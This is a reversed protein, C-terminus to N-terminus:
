FDQYFDRYIWALNRMIVKVGETCLEVLIEDSGAPGPLDMGFKEYFGGYFRLQILPDWGPM